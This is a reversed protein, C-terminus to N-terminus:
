KAQYYIDRKGRTNYSKRRVQFFEEHKGGKITKLSFSLALEPRRLYLPELSLITCKIKYPLSWSNMIISVSYRQIAEIAKSQELTIGSYWVPVAYELLCRIEKKYFDLLLEQDFDLRKLRRLLWLKTSAKSCIYETNLNWRLDSQIILGLLKTHTVEKVLDSGQITIDSPFSYSHSFNFIMTECKQQNIVFKNISTFDCFDDILTQAKNEGEKICHGTRQNFTVPTVYPQAVKEIVEKM